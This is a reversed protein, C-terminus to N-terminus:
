GGVEDLKRAYYHRHYRVGVEEGEIIRNGREECVLEYGPLVVPTVQLLVDGEFHFGESVYMTIKATVISDVHFELDLDRISHSLDQGDIKVVTSFARPMRRGEHRPLEVEIHAVGLVGGARLHLSLGM